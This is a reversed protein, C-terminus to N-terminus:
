GHRMSIICCIPILCNGIDCPLSERRAFITGVWGIGYALWTLAVAAGGPPQKRECVGDEGDVALDAAAAASPKKLRKTLSPRPRRFIAIVARLPSGGSQRM